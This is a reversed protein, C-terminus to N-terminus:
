SRTDELWAPMSIPPNALQEVGRDALLRDYGAADAPFSRPDGMMVELLVVGDPGAVFPGFTDGEDLAIHTGVPCHVEGCRMDGEVVFVVHDSRHGHAHVIMGPDWRAYLSLYRPSFELWKERVSATRDGHQQRRVEQWPVDDLHVFRPGGAM